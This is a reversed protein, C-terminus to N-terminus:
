FLKRAFDTDKHQILFKAFTALYANPNDEKYLV